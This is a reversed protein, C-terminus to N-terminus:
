SLEKIAKILYDIDEKTHTFHLSIRIWGPKEKLLDIGEKLNLLDHGYPGACSCGARVDINYDTSLRTAIEYPDRDELNFSFIPLKDRSQQCYRVLGKINQAHSIFYAKLEEEKQHIWELGIDNRLQYALSARILQLIGPTGGDERIEENDLFIHQNASVYSVTGGGSFTPALSTDILTKKIVLIGCSGVGGLLKHPALFMADYLTSDVNMYASTTASDLALLGNNRRILRSIEEIPNFIGTVNSAVSFSGIIERDQNSELVEELVKLDSYGEVCLPIRVVDCLAERFSVENSHHEFPGVIVLPKDKADIKYRQKTKPPIYIGLLEQFKKIAGSAGTGCPLLCFSDDLELSRKLSQRARDYHEATLIANKNTDSHTNAYTLLIEDIQDEVERYALGSATFDFYKRTPDIIIKEVIKKM